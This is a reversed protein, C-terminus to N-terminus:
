RRWPDDIFAIMQAWSQEEAQADAAPTGGMINNAHSYDAWPFFPPTGLIGHGAQPWYLKTYPAPDHATRLESVITSAAEASPWVADLGDDGILLLVRIRRVPIETRTTLPKSQWTWAAGGVSAGQGSQGNVNARPSSAVVPDFLHPEYSAILL